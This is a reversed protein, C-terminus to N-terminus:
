LGIARMRGGGDFKLGGGKGAAEWGREREVLGEM